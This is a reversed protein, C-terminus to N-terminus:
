RDHDALALYMYKVRPVFDGTVGLAERAASADDISPM